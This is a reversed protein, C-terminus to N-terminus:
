TFVKDVFLIYKFSIGFVSYLTRTHTVKYKICILMNM